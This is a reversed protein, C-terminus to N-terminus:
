IGMYLYLPKVANKPLSRNLGKAYRNKQSLKKIGIKGVIITNAKTNDIVKRSLKHQFDKLQNTAKRKMRKLNRNLLKYKRSGKKCHDRRSQIKTIKSEWYKDPRKNKFEIFKGKSNIATHKIIGLDFAQYIGNDVYKKEEKDYTISIFFKNDQHFVSAQYIKKFEFKEPIKFKLKIKSPHKHSLSIFGKDIKFGTQNYTMTTFYKKGKFKPPKAKKDGNKLLSFFSKYDSDLTRLIYQLVKSYVWKYEPYKEKLKPLDNQQTFYSVSETNKKWSDIRESLAFNYILRCKESLIWLIEEQKSHPFIRIKQTLQMKKDKM